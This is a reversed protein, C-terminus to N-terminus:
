ARTSQSLSRRPHRSGSRQFPPPEGDAANKAREAKIRDSRAQARTRKRKPMALGRHESPPPAPGPPPAPTSINWHPFLLTIGPKTTYSHGTPTTIVVTGDPYQKESWGAHFTKILHHKRCDCKLGGVHTAGAPYPVTHDIDTYEAPRDCGPARCTLDRQRVFHETAASPRYGPDPEAGPTRIPEVKAGRAILEALLAPPLVGHGPIIALPRPRPRRRPPRASRGGQPDPPLPEDQEPPEEPDPWDGDAPHAAGAPLSDDGDRATGDTDDGEIASDDTPDTVPPEAVHDDIRTDAEHQADRNLDEIEEGFEGEVTRPGHLGGDDVTAADASTAADLTAQDTIVHIVVNGSAADDLQAAPCDPNGCLCKLVPSGAMLAAHADGRRQKLTRPDDPCVSRAMRNVNKTAIAGDAIHMRGWYPVTGSNDPRGVVFDRDRMQERVRRVAAPDIRGIEADVLQEFKWESLACWGVIREALIADLEACADPDTLLYTRKELIFLRRGPLLGLLALAGLRSFKDSLMDAIDMEGLSRGHGINLAASLEAALGDDGDAADEQMEAGDRLRRRHLEAIAAYKEADAVASARSRATIVDILGAASLEEFVHEIIPGHHSLARKGHGSRPIGFV